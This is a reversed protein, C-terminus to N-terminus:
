YKSTTRQAKPPLSSSLKAPLTPPSTPSSSHSQRTQTSANNDNIPPSVSPLLPPSLRSPVPHPLSSTYKTPHLRHSTRMQALPLERPHSTHLPHSLHRPCADLLLAHPKSSPFCVEVQTDDRGCARNLSRCIALSCVDGMIRRM